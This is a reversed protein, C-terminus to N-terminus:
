MAILVYLVAVLLGIIIIAKLLCGACGALCGPNSM